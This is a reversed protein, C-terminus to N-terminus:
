SAQRLKQAKAMDGLAKNGQKITERTEQGDLAITSAIRALEAKLAANDSRLRDIAAVVTGNDNSQRGVMRMSVDHPIVQAGRPLNVIEGRGYENIQALGGPHFDTGLSYSPIGSRALAEPSTKIWNIVQDMTWGSALRSQWHAMGTADASRGLYTQYASSIPDSIRAMAGIQQQLASDRSATAMALAQIADGVSLVSSNITILAGVQRDLLDLQRQAETLQRGTKTEIDALTQDVEQWIRAYAESSAYYERAEDLYAQSVGTLRDMAEQDGQAARTALDRFQKAAEALQAEQGMPSADSLRMDDRFKRISQGFRELRSITQEIERRQAEYASRLAAEADAVARMADQGAVTEILGAMLPFADALMDIQAQSLGASQVIDALSLNLERLALSGDLGLAAGDRLREQYKAQAEAIENLFGFGSLDNISANLDATLEDRLKALALGLHDNIAGAAEDAAMGLQELTVQLASARGEAEAVAKEMETMELAGSLVSLAYDQAARRARALNDAVETANDISALEGLKNGMFETDAIFAKLEERLGVISQQASVFAGGMGQGSSLAELTGEFGLRFDKDLQLFFINVASQLRKQLAGDGAKMALEQYEHSKDWYERFAKTMEGVGRGEGVDLFSDIEGRLKALKEQAEKLAKSAGFLGGIFGGLAGAVIGIPGGGIGSLAGGLAGMMPDQTQYGIGLGGAASGLANMMPNGNAGGGAGGFLNALGDFIGGSAGAETGAKAGKEVAKSLGEGGGFLMDMSASLNAQGLQGLGSFVRDIFDDFDEIPKSFLDGLISGLTNQLEDAMNRASKKTQDELRRVGLESAKFLDGIEAEVAQRQLDNLADGYLALAASLEQAEKMAYEGPFMTEALQDAKDIFEQLDNNAKAAAGGASAIAPALHGGVTQAAAESSSGLEDMTEPFAGLDTTVKSMDAWMRAFADAAAQGAANSAAQAEFAMDRQAMSAEWLADLGPLQMNLANGVATLMAHLDSLIRQFADHFALRMQHVFAAISNVMWQAGAVIRQWTQQASTGIRSIAEGASQSGDVINWLQYVLEGAVVVLAGIGTRILAGRMFVLAANLVSVAGGAAIFSAVWAGAMYAAFTTAYAVGREFNDILVDIVAISPEIAGSIADAMALMAEAVRGSINYTQDLTGVFQLVNTNIRTFADGITAPMEAAEARVDELSKLMANAIVDATIKGQSAMARLGSVTTDLEQALAEAVRGGNALVTELGDAQLKGVAMAKSLANQVSAAREGRTATIVLMHNLSETFDAAGDAAIGLDRLVGVNRTYVEVTQELPSYSANALQVMRQMLRPAAEMDKVAAGVRSQMDSWADAYQRLAGVGLAAGLAAAVRMAMQMTASFRKTAGEARDADQGFKKLRDSAVVVGDSRIELGLTAIDM